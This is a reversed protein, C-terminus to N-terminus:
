KKWRDDEIRDTIICEILMMISAAAHSLHTNGSEDIDEGQLHSNIHRMASDLLQRQTFGGNLYNDAAYKKAGYTMAKAVEILARPPVLTIKPKGADFKVAKTNDIVPANSSQPKLDEITYPGINAIPPNIITPEDKKNEISKIPCMNHEKIPSERIIDWQMDRTEGFNDVHYTSHDQREMWAGSNSVQICEVPFGNRTTYWQDKKFEM